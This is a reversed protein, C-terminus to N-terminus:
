HNMRRQLGEAGGGGGRGGKHSKLAFFFSQSMHSVTSLQTQQGTGPKVEGVVAELLQRYPVHFM